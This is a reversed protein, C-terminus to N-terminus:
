NAHLKQMLHTYLKADILGNIKKREKKGEKRYLRGRTEKEYAYNLRHSASRQLRYSLGRSVRILLCIYIQFPEGIDLFGGRM